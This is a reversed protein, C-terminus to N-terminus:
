AKHVRLVALTIPQIVARGGPDSSKLVHLNQHDPQIARRGLNQKMM